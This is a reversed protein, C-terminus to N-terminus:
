GHQATDHMWELSAVIQEVTQKEEVPVPMDKMATQVTFAFLVLKEAKATAWYYVTFQQGNVDHEKVFYVFRNAGVALIEPNFPKNQNYLEELIKIDASEGKYENELVMVRLVGSGGAENFFLYHGAEDTEQKWSTPYRVAFFGFLSVFRQQNPTQM